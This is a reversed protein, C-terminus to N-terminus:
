VPFFCRIKLEKGINIYEYKLFGSRCCIRIYSKVQSLMHTLMKILFFFIKEIDRPFRMYDFFLLLRSSCFIGPIFHSFNHLFNM